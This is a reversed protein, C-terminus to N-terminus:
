FIIKEMKKRAMGGFPVGFGALDHSIMSNEMM